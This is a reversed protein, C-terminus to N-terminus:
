VGCPTRELKLLAPILVTQDIGYGGEIREVTWGGLALHFCFLALPDDVLAQEQADSLMDPMAPRAADALRALELFNIGALECIEDIRALTFSHQAFTRRVSAHSIGLAVAVDAYTLGREKLVRKLAEVLYISQTHLREASTM